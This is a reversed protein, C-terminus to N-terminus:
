PAHPEALGIRRDQVPRLSCGVRAIKSSIQPVLLLSVYLGKLVSTSDRLSHNYGAVGAQHEFRSGIPSRVKDDPPGAAWPSSGHLLGPGMM